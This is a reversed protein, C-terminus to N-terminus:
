SNINVVQKKCFFIKIEGEEEVIITQKQIEFLDIYIITLVILLIIIKLKKNTNV